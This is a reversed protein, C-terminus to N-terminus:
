WMVIAENTAESVKPVFTHRANKIFDDLGRNIVDLHDNAPDFKVDASELWPLPRVVSM